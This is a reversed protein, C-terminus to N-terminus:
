FLQNVFPFCLVDSNFYHDRAYEVDQDDIWVIRKSSTLDGILDVLNRKADISRCESYPNAFIVGKYVSLFKELKPHKTFEINSIAFGRDIREKANTEIENEGEDFIPKGTFGFVKISQKKLDQITKSLEEKHKKYKLDFTPMQDFNGNWITYDLDLLITDGERFSFKSLFTVLDTEIKPGYFPNRSSESAICIEGLLMSFLM